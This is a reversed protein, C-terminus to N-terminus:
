MAQKAKKLIGTTLLPQVVVSDNGLKATLLMATRVKATMDHALRLVGKNKTQDYTIHLLGAASADFVGLTSSLQKTLQAGAYASLAKQTHLQYLVYRKKEKLVPM